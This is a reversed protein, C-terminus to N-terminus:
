NKKKGAQLLERLELMIAHYTISDTYVELSGTCAIPYSLKADYGNRDIIQQALKIYKKKATTNIIEWKKITRLNEVVQKEYDTM